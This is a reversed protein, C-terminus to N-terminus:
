VGRKGGGKMEFLAKRDIKGNKTLPMEEINRLASPVM